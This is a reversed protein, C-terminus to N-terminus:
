VSGGEIASKLIKEMESLIKSKNQDWAPRLFPKPRSGPHPLGTFLNFIKKAIGLLGKGKKSGSNVSHPTTGFEVLHAYKTPIRELGKITKGARRKPGIVSYAFGKAFKFKERFGLSKKLVKYKTPVLTRAAKLYISRGEKLAKRLANNRVKRDLEEMAKILHNLSSTDMKIEARPM